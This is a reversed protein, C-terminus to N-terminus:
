STVRAQFQTVTLKLTTFKSGLNKSIEFFSWFRWPHGLIELIKFFRCPDGLIGLSKWSDGCLHVDLDWKQDADFELFENEACKNEACFQHIRYSISFKFLTMKLWKSKKVKKDKEFLWFLWFIWFDLFQALSHFKPKFLFAFNSLSFKM